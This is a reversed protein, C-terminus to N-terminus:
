RFLGTIFFMAAAATSTLLLLRAPEKVISLGTVKAKIVGFLALLGLTISVSWIRGDSPVETLYYPVVSILGAFMYFFTVSYATNKIRRMDPKALDLGYEGVMVEWQEKNSMAHLEMKDIIDKTIGSTTMIEIEKEDLVGLKEELQEKNSLYNGIGMAIGGMVAAIVGMLVIMSNNEIVNSFATVVIFPVSLGDSVGVIMNTLTDSTYFSYSNQEQM